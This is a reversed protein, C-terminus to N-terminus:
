LIENYIRSVVLKEAVYMTFIKEWDLFQRKMQKITTKQLDPSKLKPASYNIM